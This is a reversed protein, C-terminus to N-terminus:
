RLVAQFYHFLHGGFINDESLGQHWLSVDAVQFVFSLGYRNLYRNALYPTLLVNIELIIYFHQKVYDIYIDCTENTRKDRLKLLIYGHSHDTTHQLKYYSNIDKGKLGACGVEALLILCM